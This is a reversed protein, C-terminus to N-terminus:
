IEPYIGSDLIANFIDLIHSGLIDFTEIFYENLFLDSGFSKNRKLSQITSKIEDLTFQKDLADFICNDSNNLINEDIFNESINEYKNMNAFYEYFDNTSVNNSQKTSKKSFLTWFQKPSKHRM